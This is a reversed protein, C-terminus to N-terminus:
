ITKLFEILADKEEDSLDAGFEHGRDRVFDPCKNLRLLNPVLNPVASHDLSPLKLKDVVVLDIAIKMLLELKDPDNITGPANINVVLNVPTGKPIRGVELGQWQLKYGVLFIVVGLLAFGRGTWEFLRQRQMVSSFTLLLGLLGIVCALLPQLVEFIALPSQYFTLLAIAGWVLTLGLVFYAWDRSQRGIFLVVALGFAGKAAFRWDLWFYWWVALIISIIALIALARRVDKSFRSTLWAIALLVLVPFWDLQPKEMLTTRANPLWNGIFPWILCLKQLLFILILSCAGLLFACAVTKFALEYHDNGWQFIAAGVAIVLFAVLLPYGKFLLLSEYGSLRVILERIVPYPLRISSDATTLQISARGHRKEPNLLKDMGDTFVALRGVPTLDPLENRDPDKGEPFDGVSNNHLFPATAWIGILSHPRYYGPGYQDAGPPPNEPRPIKWLFKRDKYPHDVVISTVPDTENLNKYTESSFEEWVRGALSNDNLARGAHTGILSVPYRQDTSFYNNEIFGKELTMQEASALYDKDNIWRRYNAPDSWFQEPQKSSHCVFCAKAFVKKGHVLKSEDSTVLESGHRLKGNEM